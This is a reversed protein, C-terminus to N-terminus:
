AMFVDDFSAHVGMGTSILNQMKASYYTPYSM